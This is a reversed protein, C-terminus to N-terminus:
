LKVKIVSNTGQSSVFLFGNSIHLGYPKIVDHLFTTITSNRDIKLINNANYNAVYLNGNGDFIIGIPGDLRKDKLFIIRDGNPTIEYIINDSYGAVYLNGNSDTTIGTPSAINEYVNNRRQQPQTQQVKAAQEHKITQLDTNLSHALEQVKPNIYSNTPILSLYEKAKDNRGLKKSLNAAKYVAEYDTPKRVVIQKFVVLADENQGLYELISGLNYYADIYEPNLDIARRFANISKDYQGLKYLDMGKNYELKAETSPVTSAYTPMVTLCLISLVILIKKFKM